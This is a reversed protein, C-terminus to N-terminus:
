KSGPRGRRTTILSPRPRGLTRLNDGSGDLCAALSRRYEFLAPYEAILAELIGAGASYATLAEAPRGLYQYMMGMNGQTDGLLKRARPSDPKRAVVQSVIGLALRLDDLAQAYKGRAAAPGVISNFTSALELYDDLDRDPASAIPRAALGREM